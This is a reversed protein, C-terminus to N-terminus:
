SRTSQLFPNVLNTSIYASLKESSACIRQCDLEQVVEVSFPLEDTETIAGLPLTRGATDEAVLNAMAENIAPAQNRGPVSLFPGQSSSAEYDSSNLSPTPLQQDAPDEWCCSGARRRVLRHPCRPRQHAM